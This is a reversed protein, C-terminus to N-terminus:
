GFRGHAMQRCVLGHRFPVTIVGLPEKLESAVSEVVTLGTQGVPPDVLHQPKVGRVSRGPPNDTQRGRRLFRHDLQAATAFAALM